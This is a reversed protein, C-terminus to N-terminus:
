WQIKVGSLPKKGQKINMYIRILRRYKIPVTGGWHSVTSPVIDLNRALTDADWGLIEIVKDTEM